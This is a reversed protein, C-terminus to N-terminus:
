SWSSLRVLFPRSSRGSWDRGSPAPSPSGESSIDLSAGYDIWAHDRAAAVTPFAQLVGTLGASKM